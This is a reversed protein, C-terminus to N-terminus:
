KDSGGSVRDGFGVDVSPTQFGGVLAPFDRIDLKFGAQSKLDNGRKKDGQSFLGVRLRLKLLSGDWPLLDWQPNKPIHVGHRLWGM